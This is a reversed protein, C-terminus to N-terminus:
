FHCAYEVKRTEENKSVKNAKLYSRHFYIAAISIIREPTV